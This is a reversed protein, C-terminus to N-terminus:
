VEIPDWLKKVVADHVRIEAQELFCADQDWSSVLQIRIHELQKETLIVIYKKAM